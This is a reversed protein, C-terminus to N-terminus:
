SFFIATKKKNQKKISQWPFRDCSRLIPPTFSRRQCRPHSSDPFDFCEAVRLLVVCINRPPPQLCEPSKLASEVTTASQKEGGGDRVPIRSSEGDPSVFFQSRLMKDCAQSSSLRGVPLFCLQAHPLVPRQESFATRFKKGGEGRGEARGREPSQSTM